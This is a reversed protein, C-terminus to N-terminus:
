TNKEKKEFNSTFIINCIHNYFKHFGISIGKIFIYNVSKNIIKILYIKEKNEIMIAMM